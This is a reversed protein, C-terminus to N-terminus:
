WLSWWAPHSPSISVLNHCIGRPHINQVAFYMEQVTSHSLKIPHHDMEGGGGGVM